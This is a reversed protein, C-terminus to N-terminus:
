QKKRDITCLKDIYITDYNTLVYLIDFFMGYENIKTNKMDSDVEVTLLRWEEIIRTDRQLM